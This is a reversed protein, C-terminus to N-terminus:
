KCKCKGNNLNKGCKPCLGLCDEKCLFTMPLTLFMQERSLTALDLEGGSYYNWGVDGDMYDEGRLSTKRKDPFCTLDLKTTFDRAYESNCRSCTPRLKLSSQGKIMVDDGLMTLRCKCSLSGDIYNKLEDKDKLSELLWEKSKSFEVEMGEKPIKAVIVKM